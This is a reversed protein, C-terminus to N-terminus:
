RAPDKELAELVDVDTDSKGAKTLEGRVTDKLNQYKEDTMSSWSLIVKDGADVLNPKGDATSDNQVTVPKSWKSGDYVSWKLTSAQMDDRSATDDLFTMLFKGGGLNVIKSSPQSIANEVFKKSEVASFAATLEGDNAVWKSDVHDNTHFHIGSEDTDDQLSANIITGVIGGQKNMEIRCKQVWSLMDHDYAYEKLAKAKEKITETDSKDSDILESLEKMMARATAKESESAETNKMANEVYSITLNARRVEQFYYLFGDALPLPWSASYIDISTIVLDITGTFTVESVYGFNSDFLDPYWKTINPSYGLEFGVSVTIRIGICKYLGAGITGSVYINGKIEFYFEFDQGKLEKSNKFSDLTKNPDASSGLFFTIDLGAEVNAYVPICVIMFAWTYGVSGGFGIFGGAGMYVMDHSKEKGGNKSIEIYGYDLYVGIYARFKFYFGGYESLNLNQAQNGMSRQGHILQDELAVAKTVIKGDIRETTQGIDRTDTSPHEKFKGAFHKNNHYPNKQRTYGKGGGISVIVGLMFRVGGYPTEQVEFFLSFLFAYTSSKQGADNGIDDVESELTEDESVAQPSPANKLDELMQDADESKTVTAVVKSVVGVAATIQGIYPFAGFSYRTDDDLLDGDEDTKPEVGLMAAVDEAKVDLQMPQYNPDAYVGYGTSVADYVMDKVAANDDGMGGMATIKDTTLQAMLVDGYTWESPHAPDFSNIVLWFEGTEDDYSWKAPGGSAPETNSSFRGHIEGTEQDQFYLTVDKINETYTKNGVTYEGGKDVKVLVRLEKGNLTLAHLAGQLQGRQSAIASAFHAGEESYTDVRVIGANANVAQVQKGTVSMESTKAARNSPVRAEQITTMGNYSVLFRIKADSDYLFAPTTFKGDEDTVAGTIGFSVVAGSASNLDTASRGSALNMTSSVITGSLTAYTLHSGAAATLTIANDKARPNSRIYLANGFYESGDSLIWKPIVNESNKTYADLEYIDNTLIDEAIVYYYAGDNHTVSVYNQGGEKAGTYSVNAKIHGGMAPAGSKGFDWLMSPSETGKNKFAKASAEDPFFAMYDIQIQTGNKTNGDMPDLRFWEINGTWTSEAAHTTQKNLESLNVVYERWYKDNSLEMWAGTSASVSSAGSGIFLQLGEAGGVNRVRFKAWQIDAANASMDVSVMPDESSATFTYYEDGEAFIGTTTDLYKNYYEDPVKVTIRNGKETFTPKFSYYPHDVTDSSVAKDTLQFPIGGNIYHVDNFNILEGNQNSKRLEYYIGDPEVNASTGAGNIETTFRVKDGLHYTYTGTKYAKGSGDRFAKASNEDPFFAMYDIQIQSGNKESGAMPDLRFYSIKGNWAGDVYCPSNKIDVVYEHWGTDKELPIEIHRNGTFTENNISAFLEINKVASLNRARVKIYRINEVSEAHTIVPVYPDGGTATFTYYEDNGEKEGAWSVRRTAYFSDVGMVDDMKRDSNFDWLMSPTPAELQLAGYDQDGKKLEVTANIYDFVPRVTITGQWSDGGNGSGNKDWQICGKAAMANIRDQTMKVVATDSKGDITAIRYWAEKTNDRVKAEIGVLRLPSKTDKATLAFSDESWLSRYSYTSNDLMVAEYDNLVQEDTMGILPKVEAPEVYINFKRKIFRVEDVWMAAYSDDWVAGENDVNAVEISIKEPAKKDGWYGFLWHDNHKGGDDFYDYNINTGGPNWRSLRFEGDCWDLFGNYHVYMGDYAYGSGSTPLWF